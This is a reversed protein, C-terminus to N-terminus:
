RRLAQEAAANRWAQRFSAVFIVVILGITIWLGYHGIANAVDVARQGIFYGLSVHFGIWMLTGTLDALAFVWIRMRTEGAALYFLVTPVPLFPAAVITWPGYKAFLREGRAIRRAWRPSQRAYYDRVRRGYRVGAWYFFPDVWMLIFLPAVMAELWTGHGIRVNAGTTIMAAETGRLFSLLFPHSSILLPSIPIGAWSYVVSVAVPGICLVDAATVSSRAPAAADEAPQDAAQPSPLDLDVDADM